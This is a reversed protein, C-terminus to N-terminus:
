VAYFAPEKTTPVYVAVTRGRDGDRWSVLTVAQWRAAECAIAMAEALTDARAEATETAVIWIM